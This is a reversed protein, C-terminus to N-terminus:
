KTMPVYAGDGTREGPNAGDNIVGYTIWPATGSVRTVRVWGNAVGSNKFFNAPQSWQGPGLQVQIPGGRPVGGAGDYAQVQLVVDGASDGGTNVVAVNSRNEADARLGYVYAEGSAEDGSSIGPTFLGFQGGAPSQSATRAGFYFAGNNESLRLVRLAGAYSAAGAPGIEFPDGAQSSYSRLWGIAEPHIEQRPSAAVALTGGAGLDPSLSEVYNLFCGDLVSGSIDAAILESRFSSTEVLVPVTLGAGSVAGCVPPVFSGDNTTNDNIVAYASFAGATSTREVTVWGQTIGNGDLVQSSSYQLWGYPPLTEAEKLVVAKGDGTGSHVTVRLSVPDPSTSFVAVNTRDTASSRVGFLSLSSTCAETPLLASYALGARGVPQPPATLAATRATVSALKPDIGDGQFTVVLTGGQSPEVASPPLALGKSRLYSLVDGIQRQEGPALTDNVTGSGQKSGLSATYRISIPRSLPTNNTVSMETVYHATATSVDLVIPLIRTVGNAGSQNITFTANGIGITTSRDAGTDNASVSFDISGPGTGTTPSSVTVWPAPLTVTWTCDADTTFGVSGTSLHSGFNQSRERLVYDCRNAFLFYDVKYEVPNSAAIGIGGPVHPLNHFDAKLDFGQAPFPFGMKMNIPMFYMPLTATTTQSQGACTQVSTQTGNISNNSPVLSWTDSGIDFSLSFILPHGLFDKDASGKARYTNTITCGGLTIVSQEQVEIKGDLRGTLAGTLLNWTDLTLSGTVIQRTTYQSSAGGPSSVTGSSLGAFGIYGTMKKVNSRFEVQHPGFQAAAPSALLLLLLGLIARRASACRPALVLALAPVAKM